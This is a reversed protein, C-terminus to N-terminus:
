PIAAIWRLPAPKKVPIPMPRWRADGTPASTKQPIFAAYRDTGGARILKMFLDYAVPTRSPKGMLPSSVPLTGIAMWTISGAVLLSLSTSVLTWRGDTTALATGIRQVSILSLRSRRVRFKLSM